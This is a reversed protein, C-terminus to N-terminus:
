FTTTVMWAKRRGYTIVDRAPELCTQCWAMDVEDKRNAKQLLHQGIGKYRKTQGVYVGMCSQESRVVDWIMVYETGHRTCDPKYYTM